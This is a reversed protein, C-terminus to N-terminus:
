PASISLRSDGAGLAGGASGTAARAAASSRRAVIAFRREAITAAACARGASSEINARSTNSAM